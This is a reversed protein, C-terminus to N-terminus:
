PKEGQESVSLTPFGADMVRMEDWDKAILIQRGDELAIWGPRMGHGCCCNLTLIGADNIAQVLPQICPDVYAVKNGNYPGPKALTVPLNGEYTGGHWKCM